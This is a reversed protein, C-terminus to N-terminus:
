SRRARASLEACMRAIVDRWDGFVPQRFLRASPYWPSDPRDLLWRWDPIHSLPVWLERGLAGALHAVGTDVSVVVDLASVLAATDAWDSLEPGCAEIPGHGLLAELDEDTADAQIAYWNVGPVDLLPGLADLPISKKHNISNGPNGRWVLGVNLGPSKLRGRWGEVLEPQARLYPTSAPVTDLTTGFLGPLSLLPVYVDAGPAPADWGIVEDVGEATAILRPLGAQCAVIVRAGRAKLPAAYRVFQVTDGYGQEAQLLITKGALDEGQWLPLEPRPPATRSRKLRWDYKAWGPAYEGRLLRLLAENWHADANDPTLAQARGYSELADDLRGLEEYAIGLNYHAPAYDPSLALAQQHYAVADDALGQEKLVLGLNNLAEVYRPNFSLARRYQAAAEDWRKQMQRIFGLSYHAKAYEPKLAIAQQLAAEAEAIKGLDQYTAGINHHAEAYDPKLAAARRFHHLAKDFRKLGRYAVGINNHFHPAAANIALAKGILKIGAEFDGRQNGIVGLLHLSDVHKPMVTLIQRYLAEAEDIRGAQHHAIATALLQRIDQSQV